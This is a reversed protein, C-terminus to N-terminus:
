KKRIEKRYNVPSTGYRKKFAASFQFASEYGVLSAVVSVPEESLHLLQAAREMRLSDLYEKPTQGYAKKFIASLYNPHIHLVDAVDRIKVPDCYCSNLFSKANAAYDSEKQVPISVSQQTQALVSFLHLMRSNAELSHEVTTIAHFQEGPYDTRHYRALGEIRPDTVAIISLLLPELESVPMTIDIVNRDGFLNRLFPHSTDSYFGIWAYKWPTQSSAQYHASTGTPIYFAQGAHIEYTEGELELKGCGQLVFHILQYPKIFFGYQYGPSCEQIGCHNMQMSLGSGKIQYVLLDRNGLM